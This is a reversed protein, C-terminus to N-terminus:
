TAAGMLHLTEIASDMREQPTDGKAGRIALVACVAQADSLAGLDPRTEPGYILRAFVPVMDARSIITLDGESDTVRYTGNFLTQVRALSGDQFAFVADADIAPVPRLTVHQGAKLQLAPMDAAITAAVDLAASELGYAPIQVVNDM